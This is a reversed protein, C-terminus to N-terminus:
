LRRERSHFIRAVFVADPEAKYQIIYAAGGFRVVLERWGARKGPRGREAFEGLSLVADAIAKSARVAATESREALFDTLRDLDGKAAVSLRVPRSNM